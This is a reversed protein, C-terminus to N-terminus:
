SEPKRWKISVIGYSTFFKVNPLGDAGPVPMKPKLANFLEAAQTPDEFFISIADIHSYRREIQVKQALKYEDLSDIFSAATVGQEFSSSLLDTIKDLFPLPTPSMAELIMQKLKAETLRM